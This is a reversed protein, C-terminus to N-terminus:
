HNTYEHGQRVSEVFYMMATNKGDYNTSKHYAARVNEFSLKQPVHWRQNVCKQFSQGQLYRCQQVQSM